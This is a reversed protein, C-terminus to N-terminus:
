VVTLKKGECSGVMSAFEVQVHLGRRRPMGDFEVQSRSREHSLCTSVGESSCMVCVEVEWWIDLKRVLTAGETRSRPRHWESTSRGLGEVHKASAVLCPMGGIM